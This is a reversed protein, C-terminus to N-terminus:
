FGELPPADRWDRIVRYSEDGRPCASVEYKALFDVVDFSEVGSTKIGNISMVLDGKKVGFGEAQSKAKPTSSVALQVSGGLM